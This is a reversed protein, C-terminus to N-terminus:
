KCITYSDAGKQHLTFSTTFKFPKVSSRHFKPYIQKYLHTALQIIKEVLSMHSIDRANDM